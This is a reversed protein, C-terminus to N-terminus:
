EERTIKKALEALGVILRVGLYIGLVLEIGKLIM